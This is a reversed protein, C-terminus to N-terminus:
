MEGFSWTLFEAPGIRQRVSAYATSTRGKPSPGSSNGMVMSTGATWPFFAFRAVMVKAHVPMSVRGNLRRTVRTSSTFPFDTSIRLLLSFPFYLILAPLPRVWYRSLTTM